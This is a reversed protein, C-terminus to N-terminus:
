TIAIVSDAVTSAISVDKKLKKRRRPFYNRKTVELRFRLLQLIIVRPIRYVARFIYVPVYGKELM